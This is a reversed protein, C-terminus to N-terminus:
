NILHAPLALTLLESRYFLRASNSNRDLENTESECLYGEPHLSDM